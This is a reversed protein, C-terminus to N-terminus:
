RELQSLGLHASNEKMSPQSHFRGGICFVEALKRITMFCRLLFFWHLFVLFKDRPDSKPGDLSLNTPTKDSSILLVRKWSRGDEGVKENGLSYNHITKKASYM